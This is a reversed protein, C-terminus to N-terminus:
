LQKPMLKLGMRPKLQTSDFLISVDELYGLVIPNVAITGEDIFFFQDARLTFSERKMTPLPAGPELARRIARHDVLVINVYFHRDDKILKPSSRTLFVIMVRKKKGLSERIFGEVAWADPYKKHSAVHAFLYEEHNVKNFARLTNYRGNKITLEVKQVAKMFPSHPGMGVRGSLDPEDCNVLVWEDVVCRNGLSLKIRVSSPSYDECNRPHYLSIKSGTDLIMKNQHQWEYGGDPLITIAPVYLPSMNANEREAVLRDEEWNFVVSGGIALYQISLSVSVILRM